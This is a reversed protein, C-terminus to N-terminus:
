ITLKTLYAYIQGIKSEKVVEIPTNIIDTIPKDGEIYILTEKHCLPMVKDLLEQWLNLAYPPDIFIIDFPINLSPLATQASTNIISLNASTLRLTDANQKLTSAQTSNPEVFVVFDAGRSLCEFGLVGSGACVDLVRANVLHGMLWNFLTERLRDPTPRLGDGDVFRILRGRHLGSIIRVQNTKQCPKPKTTKKM